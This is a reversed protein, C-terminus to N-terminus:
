CCLAASSHYVQVHFAFIATTIYYASVYKKVANM